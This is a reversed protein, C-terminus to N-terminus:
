KKYLVDGNAFYIETTSTGSNYVEIPELEDENYKGCGNCHNCDITDYICGDSENDSWM